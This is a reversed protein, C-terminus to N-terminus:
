GYSFCGQNTWMHGQMFAGLGGMEGVMWYQAAAPTGQPFKSLDPFVYSHIDNVDGVLLNNASGGSNTDVLRTPDYAKLWQVVQAADFHRVMDGENFATWQFICPHNGRGDVLAKLDGM